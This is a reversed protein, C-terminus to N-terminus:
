ARDRDDALLRLVLRRNQAQRWVVAMLFVILATRIIKRSAIVVIVLPHMAHEPVTPLGLVLLNIVAFGVQIVLVTRVSRVHGALVTETLLSASQHAKRDALAERLLYLSWWVGAGSCLLGVAQLFDDHEMIVQAGSHAVSILWDRM